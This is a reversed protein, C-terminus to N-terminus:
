AVRGALRDAAVWAVVAAVSALIVFPWSAAMDLAARIEYFGAAAGLWVLGFAAACALTGIGAIRLFSGFLRGAAARSAAEKAADDLAPDSLDRAAARAAEIAGGAERVAGGLRLVAVFVLLALALAAITM